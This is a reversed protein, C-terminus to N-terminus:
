SSHSTKKNPTVNQAVHPYRNSDIQNIIQCSTQTHFHFHFLKRWNFANVKYFLIYDHVFPRAWPTWRKMGRHAAYFCLDWPSDTVTISRTITKLSGVMHNWAGTASTEPEGSRNSERYVTSFFCNRLFLLRSLSAYLLIGMTDATKSIWTFGTSVYQGYRGMYGEWNDGGKWHFIPFNKLESHLWPEALLGHLQRQAGTSPLLSPPTTWWPKEGSFHCWFSTSQAYPWGFACGNVDFFTSSIILSSILQAIPRSKSDPDERYVQLFGIMLYSSRQTWKPQASM